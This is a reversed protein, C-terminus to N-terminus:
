DIFKKFSPSSRYLYAHKEGFNHQQVEVKKEAHTSCCSRCEPNPCIYRGEICRETLDRSDIIEYCKFGICHNIYYDINYEQCDECNCKFVTLRYAASVPVKIKQGTSPDHKVVEVRAYKMNPVMLKDCTRCHLRSHLERIRNLYGALKIAFDRKSPENFTAYNLGYHCLWDFISYQEFNKSLVPEVRPDNCRRARCLYVNEPRSYKSIKEKKWVFAECSLNIHPYENKLTNCQPFLKFISPHDIDLKNNLIASWIEHLIVSSITEVSNEYNILPLLKSLMWCEPDTAIDKDNEVDEVFSMDKNYAKIRINHKKVLLQNANYLPNIISNKTFDLFNNFCQKYIIRVYNQVDTSKKFLVDFVFTDIEDIRNSLSDIDILNKFVLTLLASTDFFRLNEQYYSKRTDDDLSELWVLISDLHQEFFANKFDKDELSLIPLLHHMEEATISHKIAQAKLYELVVKDNGTLCQIIDCYHTVHAQKLLKIGELRTTQNTLTFTVIAENVKGSTGIKSNVLFGLFEQIQNKIYTPPLLNSSIDNELYDALNRGKSYINFLNASKMRYNVSRLFEEDYPLAESFSQVLAIKTKESVSDIAYDILHCKSLLKLFQVSLEDYSENLDIVKLKKIFAKNVLEIPLDLVSLESNIIMDVTLGSVYCKLVPNDKSKKGLLKVVSSLIGLESKVINIFDLQEKNSLSDMFNEYLDNSRSLHAVTSTLIELKLNINSLSSWWEFLKEYNHFFYSNPITSPNIASNYLDEASLKEVLISFLAVHNDCEKLIGSLIPILRVQHRVKKIIDKGFDGQLIKIISNKYSCRSIVKDLDAAYLLFNVMEESSPQESTVMTTVNKASLKNKADKSLEFVVVEGEGLVGGNVEDKHVFVSTYDHTTIFGFHNNRGTKKNKGGFWDVTGLTYNKTDSM